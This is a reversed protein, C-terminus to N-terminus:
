NRDYNFICKSGIRYVIVTAFFLLLIFGSYNQADYSERVIKLYQLDFNSNSHNSFMENGCNELIGLLM